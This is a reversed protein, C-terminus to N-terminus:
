NGSFQYILSLVLARERVKETATVPAPISGGIISSLAFKALVARSSTGQKFALDVALPGRKYGTGLTFGAMTRAELTLPDRIPLDERFAGIRIPLVGRESLFLYEMGGHLNTADPVPAAPRAADLRDSFYTADAPLGAGELRAKSWPTRSWDLSILWTAMPKYSLGLGYTGPQTFRYRTGRDRQVVSTTTEYANASNNWTSQDSAALLNRYLNTRYSAQYVAGIGFTDTRYLLGVTANLAKFSEGEQSDVESISPHPMPNGSGDTLVTETAAMNFRRDQRWHNLALGLHLNPAVETAGAVSWAELQGDQRSVGGLVSFVPRSPDLKFDADLRSRMAFDLLRQYSVQFVVRRGGWHTVGTASFFQPSVPVAALASDDRVAAGRASALASFGGYTLDSSRQTLVLSAESVLLQSLGAPNFSAATADDAVGIFAGGMGTARAGAGQISFASRTQQAALLRLNNETQAPNITQAFLSPLGAGVLCFFVHIGSRGM